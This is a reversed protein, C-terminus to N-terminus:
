GGDACGIPVAQPSAPNGPHPQSHKDHRHELDVHAIEVRADFDLLNSLEKGGERGDLVRYEGDIRLGALRLAKGDDHDAVGVDAARGHLSRLSLTKKPLRQGDVLDHLLASRLGDLFDTLSWEAWV